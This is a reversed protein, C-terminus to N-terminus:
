METQFAIGKVSGYYLNARIGWSAIFQEAMLTYCLTYLVTNSLLPFEKLDLGFWIYEDGRAYLM